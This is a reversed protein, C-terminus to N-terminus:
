EGKPKLAQEDKEYNSCKFIGKAYEIGDIFGRLYARKEAIETEVVTEKQKRAYNLEALAKETDVNQALYAM